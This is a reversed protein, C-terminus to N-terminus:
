IALNLTEAQVITNTGSFSAGGNVSIGLISGAPTSNFGSSVTTIQGQGSAGLTILGTAALAHRCEAKGVVVASTGAGVTRFHLLVEFTGTDVVGTGATFTFTLIAADATTGATGFRVNIIFTAVGAATKVMDFGCAYRTGIIPGGAPMAISSGALYTDAAYGASVTSVSRNNLRPNAWKVGNAAAADAVLVLGDAGVPLRSVATGYVVLDGKTTLPFNSAVVEVGAANTFHFEGEQSFSVNEGAALTGKWLPEVTTGDTHQITVLNGISAHANFVTLAKINRQTSAAPAAVVDTTAATTISATNTRGPTITGSLNDVWSAHVNVTGASGTIVQIKDTASTLLLM